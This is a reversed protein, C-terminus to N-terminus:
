FNLTKLGSQTPNQFISKTMTGSATVSPQMDISSRRFHTSTPKAAALASHPLGKLPTIDM